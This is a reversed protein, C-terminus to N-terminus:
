TEKKKSVKGQMGEGGMEGEKARWTGYSVEGRKKTKNKSETFKRM